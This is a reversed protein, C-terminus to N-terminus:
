VINNNNNNDDDVDGDDGDYKYEDGYDDNERESGLRRESQLVNLFESSLVREAKEMWGDTLEMSRCPNVMQREYELLLGSVGGEGQYVNWVGDSPLGSPTNSFASLPKWQTLQRWPWVSWVDTTRVAKISLAMSSSSSSSSQYAHYLDALGLTSLSQQLTLSDGRLSAFAAISHMLDIWGIRSNWFYGNNKCM